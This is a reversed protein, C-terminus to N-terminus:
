SISNILFEIKELDDSVINHIDNGILTYSYYKSIGSTEFVTVYTTYGSFHYETTNETYLAIDNNDLWIAYSITTDNFCLFLKNSESASIIKELKLTESQIRPPSFDLKEKEFLEDITAYHQEAGNRIWTIGNVEVSDGIDLQLATIVMERLVPVALVTISFCLVVAAAIAIKWFRKLKVGSKKTVASDTTTRSIISACKQKIEEQTFNHEGKLEKMLHICENIFDTDQSAIPKKMEDAVIKHLQRFSAQRLAVEECAPQKTQENMDQKM